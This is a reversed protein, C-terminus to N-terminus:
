APSTDPAAHADVREEGAILGALPAMPMPVQEPPVQDPSAHEPPALDPPAHDPPVQDPPVEILRPVGAAEVTMALETLVVDRRAQIVRRLKRWTSGTLGDLHRPIDACLAVAETRYREAMAGAAFITPSSLTGPADLALRRLSDMAVEADQMSGLHDQIAVLRRTFASTRGAYLVATLELAYRLRKCRIRLRHFDEPVGTRSARRAARAVSRHRDGILDPVALAAPQRIVPSRGVPGRRVLSRASQLLRSYRTSDLAQLLHHRALARNRDLADRIEAIAAADLAVADGFGPEARRAVDAAWGDARELQVDLDRVAGLVQALWGLESRLAAARAPLVSQFFDITARLRRTAVRMDHLEEPDEGLRTGPEHAILAGLHRRLSVYALEGLTSTPGADTPGLDPAGPIAMGLALLGTEFKSLTAPRLGCSAVLDTVVPELWAMWSPDIEVEVRRLRVPEQGAGVTITTDDLAVEAVESGGVRLSYPRRRTRIELVERLPKRGAMAAARTGVAGPTRRVDTCGKALSETVEIRRRLGTQSAPRLNKLTAEDVRGHRRTRLVYGARGIRWDETDLYRDVLRRGPKALAVLTAGAEGAGPVEAGPVEAGPLAALWREVPRLDLADFQWEVEIDASRVSAPGALGGAASRASQIDV